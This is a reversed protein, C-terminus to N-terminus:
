ILMGLVPPKQDEDSEFISKLQTLMALSAGIGAAWVNQATPPYDISLTSLFTIGAIIAANVLARKLANM